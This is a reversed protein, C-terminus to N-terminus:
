LPAPRRLIVLVWALVGGILGILPLGGIDFKIVTYMATFALAVAIIMGIIRL